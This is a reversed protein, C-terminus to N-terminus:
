VSRLVFLRRDVVEFDCQFVLSTAGFFVVKQLLPFDIGEEFDDVLNRKGRFLRLFLQVIVILSPDPNM